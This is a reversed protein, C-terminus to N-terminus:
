AFFFAFVSDLLLSLLLLFSFFTFSFPDIIQTVSKALVLLYAIYSHIGIIVRKKYRTMVSETLGVSGAFFTSDLMPLHSILIFDSTITIVSCM